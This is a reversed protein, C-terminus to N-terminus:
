PIKRLTGHFELAFDSAEVVVELTGVAQETDDIIEMDDDLRAWWTGEPHGGNLVEYRGPELDYGVLYVGDIVNEAIPDIPRGFDEVSIIWDGVSIFSDTPQVIMIGYSPQAYIYIDILEMNEDLRTAANGWVRFTGLPVDDPVASKGKEIFPLPTTTTPPSTTTPAPATQEVVPDASAEPEPETTESAPDQADSQEADPAPATEGDVGATDPVTVAPQDAPAEDSDRSAALILGGVLAVAAVSAAVLMWARSRNHPENRDPSIMIVEMTSENTDHTDESVLSLTPIGASHITPDIPGQMRDVMTFYDRLQDEIPANM